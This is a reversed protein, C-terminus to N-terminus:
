GNYGVIDLLEQDQYHEKQNFALVTPPHQEMMDIDILQDQKVSINIDTLPSSQNHLRVCIYLYEYYFHRIYATPIQNLSVTYVKNKNFNISIGANGAITCKSNHYNDVLCLWIGTWYIDANGLTVNIRYTFNRVVTTDNYLQYELAQMMLYHTIFLEHTGKPVTIFESSAAASGGVAAVKCICNANVAIGSCFSNAGPTVNSTATQQFQITAM